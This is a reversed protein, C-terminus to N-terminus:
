TEETEKEAENQEEQAKRMMRETQKDERGAVVCLCYTFFAVSVVVFALAMIFAGFLLVKAIM